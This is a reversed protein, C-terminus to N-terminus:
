KDGKIARELRLIIITKVLDDWVLYAILLVAPWNDQLWSM